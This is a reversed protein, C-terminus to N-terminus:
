PRGYKDKFYKYIIKDNKKYDFPSFFNTDYLLFNGALMYSRLVTFDACLLIMKYELYITLSSIAESKKEWTHTSYQSRQSLNFNQIQPDFRVVHERLIQDLHFDGDILMRHQTRLENILLVLDNIFSGLPGPMSYVIVLLTGKEVELVVPLGELVSPVETVEINAKSM